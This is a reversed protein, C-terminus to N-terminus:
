AWGYEAKKGDVEPRPLSFLLLPQERAEGLGQVHCSNRPSAGLRAPSSQLDCGRASSSRSKAGHLQGYGAWAHPDLRWPGPKDRKGGPEPTDGTKWLVHSSSLEGQGFGQVDTKLTSARDLLLCGTPPSPDRRGVPLEWGPQYRLTLHADSGKHTFFSASGRSRQKGLSPSLLCARFM